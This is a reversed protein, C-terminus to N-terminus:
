WGSPAIPSGPWDPRAPAAWKEATFAWVETGPDKWADAPLDAKISCTKRLFEEPGWGQESAVQPLFCGSKEGRRVWLGEGPRPPEGPALRRLPSLVSVEYSLAPLEEPTIPDARFRPDATAASRALGAVAEPLPRTGRVVGVCGRLRGANRITVFVGRREGGGAGAAPVPPGPARRVAAEAHARAIELLRRGREPDGPVQGEM